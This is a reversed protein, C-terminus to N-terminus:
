KRIFTRRAQVGRSTTGEAIYTGPCLTSIDVSTRFATQLVNKGSLDYIRILDFDQDTSFKLTNGAPNPYLNFSIQGAQTEHIGTTSNSRIRINDFKVDLWNSITRYRIAIYCSGTTPPITIGTTNHWTNDSSYRTDRYDYLMTKATALAPDPSGALLYIAVTDGAAPVGFGSFSRYLSDIRGGDPLNFAPSVFWDDSATTAGVPYNHVLCNPATYAGAADYVWEYFDHIYGKRFEQWGTQQANNDFGTIYPLTTQASAKLGLSAALFLTTILTKNCYM